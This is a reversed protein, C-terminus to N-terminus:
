RRSREDAAQADATSASRGRQWRLLRSALGLLGASIAGTATAALTLIAVSAQIEWPLFRVTVPDPNQLAFVAVAILLLIGLIFISVNM